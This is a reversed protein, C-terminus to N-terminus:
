SISMIVITNITNNHAPLVSGNDVDYEILNYLIAYYEEIVM